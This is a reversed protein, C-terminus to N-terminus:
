RPAGEYRAQMRTYFAADWIGHEPPGLGSAKWGSFPASPHIALPGPALQVIGAEAADLM